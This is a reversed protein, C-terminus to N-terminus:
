IVPSDGHRARGMARALVHTDVDLLADDFGPRPSQRAIAVYQRTAQLETPPQTEEPIRFLRALYSRRGLDVRSSYVSLPIILLLSLLIPAMWILFLPDLWAVLGGWLLGMVTQSGHSRAADGWTTEDNDRSPSIWKAAWGLFAALVFRTHFIMRVPALLMSFM